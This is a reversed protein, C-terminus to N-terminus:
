EGDEERRKIFEAKAKLEDVNVEKRKVEDEFEFLDTPKLKKGKPIQINLLLCTEWRSREWNQRERMRELEFFGSLKNWFYVPIMGYLEDTTMGMM